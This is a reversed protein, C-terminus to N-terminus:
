TKPKIAIANHRKGHGVAPAIINHVIQADRHEIGVVCVTISGCSVGM